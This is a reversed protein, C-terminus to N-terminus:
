PADSRRGKRGIAGPQRWTKPALENWLDTFDNDLLGSFRRKASDQLARKPRRTGTFTTILWERCDAIAEQREATTSRTTQTRFWFRPRPWRRIDCLHGFDKQAILHTRFIELFLNPYDTAPIKALVRYANDLHEHTPDAPNPLVVFPTFDVVTSGDPEFTVTPSVDLDSRVFAIAGTDPLTQLGLLFTKRSAAGAGGPQLLRLDGLWFGALLAGLLDDPDPRDPGSRAWDDAIQSVALSDEPRPYM